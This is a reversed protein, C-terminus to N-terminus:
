ATPILSVPRGSPASGILPPAEILARYRAASGRVALVYVLDGRRWVGLMLGGTASFANWPPLEPLASTRVRSRMCFVLALDGGRSALDYVVTQQDYATAILCWRQPAARVASDLPHDRLAAAEFDRNWGERVVAETWALVEGPLRDDARPEGIGSYPVGLLFALVAATVALSGALIMGIRQRRSRTKPGLRASHGALEASSDRTSIPEPTQGAQPAASELAALLRNELGDPVPVERFLGALAADLRQSREFRNRVALDSRLMDVLAAMEPQSLDEDGPRCVDMAQQIERETM